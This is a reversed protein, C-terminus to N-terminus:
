SCARCLGCLRFQPQFGPRFAFWYWFFISHMHHLCCNRALHSLAQISSTIHQKTKLQTSCDSFMLPHARFQATYWANHFPHLRVATQAPHFPQKSQFPAISGMPSHFGNLFPLRRILCGMSVPCVGSSAARISLVEVFPDLNNWKNFLIFLITFREIIKNAGPM